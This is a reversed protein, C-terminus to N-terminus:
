RPPVDIRTSPACVISMPSMAEDSTMTEGSIVACTLICDELMLASWANPGTTTLVM